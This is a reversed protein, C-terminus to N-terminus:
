LLMGGALRNRFEGMFIIANLNRVENLTSCYRAKQNRTFNVSMRSWDADELFAGSSRPTHTFCRFLHLVEVKGKRKCEPRFMWNSSEVDTKCPNASQDSFGTQVKWILKAPPPLLTWLRGGVFVSQNGQHYMAQDAMRVQVKELKRTLGALGLVPM